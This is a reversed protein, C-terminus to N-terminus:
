NIPPLATTYGMNQIKAIYASNGEDYFYSHFLSDVGGTQTKGKDLDVTAQNYATDTWSDHYAYGDGNSTLNTVSLDPNMTIISLVTLKGTMRRIAHDANSNANIRAGYLDADLNMSVSLQGVEQINMGISWIPEEATGKSGYSTLVDEGNIGESPNTEKHVADYITNSLGLMYFLVWDLLNEAFYEGTLKHETLEYQDQFWSTWKQLRRFYLTGTPDNGDTHYFFDTWTERNAVVIVKPTHIRGYVNVQIGDLSIFADIGVNGANIGLAKLQVNGSLHYTTLNNTDTVGLSITGLLHEVLSSLSTFDTFSGLNPNQGFNRYLIPNNTEPDVATENIDVEILDIKIYLDNIAEESGSKTEIEITNLANTINVNGEDDSHFNKDGFHLRITLDDYLGLMSKPLVLTTLEPQISLSKVLESSLADLFKGQQIKSILSTAGDSSFLNGLRKYRPDNSQTLNLVLQIVENLSTISMRGMLPGNSAGDSHYRLFMQNDTSADSGDIAPGSVDVDVYHKEFYNAMRNIIALNGAGMSKELDLAFTGSFESGEETRHYTNDTYKNTATTGEKLSYGSFNIQVQKSSVLMGLQDSISPVHTLENFSDKDTIAIEQYEGVTLTGSFEFFAFKAKEFVISALSDGEKGSLTLYIMGSLGAKSLDLTLKWLNDSIEIGTLIELVSEYHGDILGSGLASKKLEEIQVAIADMSSLLGAFMGNSANDAKGVNLGSFKAVLADMVTKSTRFATANNLRGFIRHNPDIAASEYEFDISSTQGTPLYQVLDGEVQRKLYEMQLKAGISDLSAGETDVSANAKLNLGEDVEGRGFSTPTSPIEDEHHLITMDLDINFSASSIYRTIRTFLDLSNQLPLYSGEDSPKKWDVPAAESDVSAKLKIRSTPTLSFEPTSSTAAPFDVGTWAFNADASFGIPYVIGGEKLSLNLTFYPLSDVRTEEITDFCSLVHTWDITTTEEGDKKPISVASGTSSQITELINEIIWSLHGYEYQTTGGTPDDYEGVYPTLDTKYKISPGKLGQGENSEPSAVNFYLEDNALYLGLYRSVGNYSIPADLSLYLDHLSFGELAFRLEANQFDIRNEKGEVKADITYFGEDIKLQVGGKALSSFSQLFRHKGEGGDPSLSSATSNDDEKESPTFPRTVHFCSALLVAGLTIGLISRLAFSSEKKM